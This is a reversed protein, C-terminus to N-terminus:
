PQLDKRSPSMRGCCCEGEPLIAHARNFDAEQKARVLPPSSLYRFLLYVTLLLILPYTLFEIM